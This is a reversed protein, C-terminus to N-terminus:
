DARERVKSGISAVERKRKEVLLTSMQHWIFQNTTLGDMLCSRYVVTEPITIAQASVMICDELILIAILGINKSSPFNCLIRGSKISSSIKTLM